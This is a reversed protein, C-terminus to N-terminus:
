KVKRGARRTRQSSRITKILDRPDRLIFAYLKHTIHARERGELSADRLGVIM